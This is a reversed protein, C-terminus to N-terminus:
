GAGLRVTGQLFRPLAPADADRGDWGIFGVPSGCPGTTGSGACVATGAARPPSIGVPASEKGGHLTRTRAKQVVVVRPSIAASFDIWKWDPMVTARAWTTPM